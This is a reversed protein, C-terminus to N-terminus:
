KILLLKKIDVFSGASLKYFYVGSSLSSADFAVEYTGAPRFEDVLTTIENGLVDYVKLIQWSGAPLQWRITTSPNFPNPYNQELSFSAPVIEEKPTDLSIGETLWHVSRKILSDSVSHDDLQEFAFGFYVVRHNGDDAKVSNIKPGTAGFKIVPTTFVDFPSIEDPSRTYVSNLPIIIGNGIPDGAIGTLFINGGFDALYNAHLYNNFFNQAFQSQGGPEFIDSGINHGSMLLNGGQDLYSQLNSVESPYFAPNSNGAAWAIMAFFSLDIGTTQLASRSVVGYRGEFFKGLANLVILSTNTESGDVVLIHVGSNTVINFKVNIILAPSNKSACQLTVKGAGNFFNPTVKLSVTASAGASVNISDLEGFQFTGNTTTFEGTWGAPGDISATINYTDNMIGQNHLVATFEANSSSSIIADPSSSTLSAIYNPSKLPMEVAQQIEGNNSLPAGVKYVIVVINCNDWVMDPGPGGPHPITRSLTKTITTGSNWNGNIIDEGLAGNMMDRVVYNHVYDPGGPCTSNGIQEWVLGDELLIVSFKFHGSLNALAKFDFLVNFERTSQNFSRNVTISVTAPISNRTEMLYPWATMSQIGSIRDVIGTPYAFFGLHSLISNGYFHSFPDIGNAPGHYGIMIANPMSAKIQAMVPHACPCGQCWTGTCEELVPNRQSQSFIDQSHAFINLLVSTVITLLHLKNKMAAVKYTNINLLNM